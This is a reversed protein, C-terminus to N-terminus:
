ESHEHESARHDSREMVGSMDSREMDSRMNVVNMNARESNAASM